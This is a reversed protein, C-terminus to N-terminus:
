WVEEMLPLLERIRKLVKHKALFVANESMGLHEAVRRAPWGKWAFLEFAEITQAEFVHRVEEICQSLVAQRWEEEWTRELRNDDELRDFFGAQEVQDVIQIERKRLKRATNRIENRAIGFLWHRLSGKERDYKGDQYATAFTLITQQAADEADDERLGLGCAFKFVAPRYRGVFQQWVTRNDSSKLGDLLYTSTATSLSVAEKKHRV